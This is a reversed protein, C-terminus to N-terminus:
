KKKIPIYIEYMNDPSGPDDISPIYRKDFVELGLTSHDKIYGMREIWTWAKRYTEPTTKIPGKHVFVAYRQTPVTLTLMGKPVQNASDVEVGIYCTFDTVRDHCPSVFVGPQVQNPIEKIRSIFNEWIHPIERSMTYPGTWGIGMFQFSEKTLIRGQM